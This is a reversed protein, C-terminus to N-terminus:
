KGDREKEKKAKKPAYIWTAVLYAISNILCLIIIYMSKESPEKTWTEYLDIGILCILLSLYCVRIIKLQIMLEMEDMKRIKKM